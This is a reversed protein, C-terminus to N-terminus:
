TDLQWLTGSLSHGASSHEVVSNGVASHWPHSQKFISIIIFFLVCIIEISIARPYGNYLYYLLNSKTENMSMHENYTANHREWLSFVGLSVGPTLVLLVRTNCFIFYWIKLLGWQFSLTFLFLIIKFAIIIM